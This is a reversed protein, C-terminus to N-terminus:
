IMENLFDAIKKLESNEPRLKESYYKSHGTLTVKGCLQYYTYEKAATNIRLVHQLITPNRGRSSSKFTCTDFSVFRIDRYAIRRTVFGSRFTIAEDDACYRCPFKGATLIFGFCLFAIVALVAVPMFPVQSLATLLIMMVLTTLLFLGENKYRFKGEMLVM